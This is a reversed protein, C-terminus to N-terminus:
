PQPIKWNFHFVFPTAQINWQFLCMKDLWTPLMGWSSCAKYAPKYLGIHRPTASTHHQPRLIHQGPCTQEADRPRTPAPPQHGAGAPPGTQPGTTHPRCCACQRVRCRGRRRHQWPQWPSQALWLYLLMQSSKLMKFHVWALEKFRICPPLNNVYLMHYEWNIPLTWIKKEDSHITIILHTRLDPFINQLQFWNWNITAPKNNKYWLHLTVPHVGKPHFEKARNLHWVMFPIINKTCSHM